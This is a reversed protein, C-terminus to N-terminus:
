PAAAFLEIDHGDPDRVVFGSGYPADTISGPALGHEQLSAQWELLAGRDACGFAVHDVGASAATSLTVIWGGSPSLLIVHGTGDDAVAGEIRTLGLANAYWRESARLDTVNVAVHTVAGLPAPSM